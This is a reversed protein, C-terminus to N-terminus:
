AGLTVLDDVAAEEIFYKNFSLYSRTITISLISSVSGIENPLDILFSYGLIGTIKNANSSVSIFCSECFIDGLEISRTKIQDPSADTKRAIMLYTSSLFFASFSIIFPLTREIIKISSEGLIYEISNGKIDKTVQVQESEFLVGIEAVTKKSLVASIIEAKKILQMDVFPGKWISRTM